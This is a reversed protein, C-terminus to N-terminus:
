VKEVTKDEANYYVGDLSELFSVSSLLGIVEPRNEAKKLTAMAKKILFSQQVPKDGAETVADEIIQTADAKSKDSATDAASSGAAKKGAGAPLVVSQPKVLYLPFRDGEFRPETFVEVKVGDLVRLDGAQLLSEPFGGLVLSRTFKAFDSDPNLKYEQGPEPHAFSPGSDVLEADKEPGAKIKCASANGVDYGAKREKGTDDFLELRGTVITVEQGENPGKTPTYKRYEFRPNGITVVGGKFRGQGFDKPAFSAM